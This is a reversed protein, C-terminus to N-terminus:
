RTFIPTNREAMKGFHRSGAASADGVAPQMQSQEALIVAIARAPHRATAFRPAPHEPLRWGASGAIKRASRARTGRRSLM